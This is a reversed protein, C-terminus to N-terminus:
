APTYQYPHNSPPRRGSAPKPTIYSNLTILVPEDIASGPKAELAGRLTAMNLEYSGKDTYLQSLLSTTVALSDANEFAKSSAHCASGEDTVPLRGSALNLLAAVDLLQGREGNRGADRAYSVDDTQSAGHFVEHILDDAVVDHNFGLGIFHKNLNPTYIEIFKTASKDTAGKWQQYANPDFAAIHHTDKLPDLFFNSISLGAFDARVLRLYNLLREFADSSNNGMLVKIIANRERTFDHSTLVNIANEIKTRALPLSQEIFQRTYSVPLTKVSRPLRVPAMFTFNSLKPGWPKGLRDLAYWKLNNRAAVVIFTEGTAGLPRWTGQGTTDASKAARVLDYTKHRGNLKHLQSQALGLMEQAQRNFRLAGKHVLKGAGFLATPVGDVPNFLSVSTVFALKTLRAAKSTTSIAKASISLAKAGAGVFAGALAIADMVCGYMGDVIKDDEGSSLDEICKKFPVVLDVIYKATEEGEKRQRELKTPVTTVAEFEDFTIIPRNNVIFEAIRIIQPHDFNKFISQQRLTPTAPAPLEGLKEIIAMSSDSDADSSGHTYERLTIPLSELRTPVQKANLDGNFDTRAAGQLKGAKTILAGLTSNRRLEGRLTFLEYCAVTSGHAAYMVIGFRGTVADKNQQTEYDTERTFPGVLRTSSTELAASRLTFFTIKGKLFTELDFPLMHSLALKVNTAVASNLNKLYNRLQHHFEQNNPVLRWLPYRRHISVVSPDYFTPTKYNTLAAHLNPTTPNNDPFVARLDWNGTVLDGSMHLEVMSMASPSGLGPLQYIIKEELFDCDPAVKNVAAWAIDKRSPISRAYVSALHTFNEVYKQFVTIARETTEKEAQTLETTTVVGNILAWDVIPDIMALDRLHKLPESVPELDAYAMIQAYTMVRSAGKRVAEALVVGRCFSVWGVSGIMLSSPVGKVLLEPAIEALLLHSALPVLVPNLSGKPHLFAQLEERVVSSHREVNTPAYLDLGAISKRVQASGIFPYLELLIATILLQALDQASADQGSQAGFWDLEELLKRAFAQAVPHKVLQVIREAANDHTVFALGTERYLKDLLKENAGVLKVTAQRIAARQEASLVALSPDDAVLQSWYNGLDDVAPDFELVDILNKTQAADTPVHLDHFRLWQDVDVNDIAVIFGGAQKAIDGLDRLKGPVGTLEHANVHIEEWRQSADRYLEITGNATVRISDSDKPRNERLTDFVFLNESLKRWIVRGPMHIEYLSSGEKLGFEYGQWTFVAEESQAELAEKLLELVQQREAEDAKLRRQSEETAIVSSYSNKSKLVACM